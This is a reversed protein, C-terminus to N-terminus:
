DQEEKRGSKIEQQRTMLSSKYTDLVWMKIELESAARAFDYDMPHSNIFLAVSDEDRLNTVSRVVKANYRTEIFKEQENLGFQKRFEKLSKSNGTIKDALWGFCGSCGIGVVGPMSLSPKTLLPKNLEKRYLQERYMSDTQYKSRGTISVTKLSLPMQQLHVIVRMEKVTQVVQQYGLRKIMLKDGPQGMISFYGLSDTGASIENNANYINAFPVGRLTEDDVIRGDILQASTSLASLVAIILVLIRMFMAIVLPVCTKDFNAIILMQM